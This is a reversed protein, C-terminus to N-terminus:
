RRQGGPVVADIAALVRLVRDGELITQRRACSSM